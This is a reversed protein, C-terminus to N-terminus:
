QRRRVRRRLPRLGTIHLISLKITTEYWGGNEGAEPPQGLFVFGRTVVAQDPHLVDFTRGDSMHIQFPQFPTERLEAVIDRPTFM